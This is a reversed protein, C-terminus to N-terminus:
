FYETKEETWVFRTMKVSLSSTAHGQVDSGSILLRLNNESYRYVVICIRIFFWRMLADSGKLWQQPARGLKAM